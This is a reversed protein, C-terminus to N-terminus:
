NTKPAFLLAFTFIKPKEREKSLLWKSESSNLFSIEFWIPRSALHLAATGYLQFIAAIWWWWWLVVQISSIIFCRLDLLPIFSGCDYCDDNYKKPDFSDRAFSHIFSHISEIRDICATQHQYLHPSLSICHNPIPNSLHFKMTLTKGNGMRRMSVTPKTGSRNSLRADTAANGYRSKIWPVPLVLALIPNFTATSSCIGALLPPTTM